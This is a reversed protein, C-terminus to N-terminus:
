EGAIFIKERRTRCRLPDAYSLGRRGAMERGIAEIQDAPLHRGALPFIDEDELAIHPRYLGELKQLAARIRAAEGALIAGQELWRSGIADVTSHLADANRHDAELAQIQDLTSKIEDNQLQRMRPFLSAEEDRTHRPAANRFYRLSIELAHRQDANLPDANAQDCVQRLFGLFREIRRHCDSLLGLPNDFGNDSKDGIQISM